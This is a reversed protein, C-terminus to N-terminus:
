PNSPPPTTERVLRAFEHLEQANLDSVAWFTMGGASWHALHYGQWEGPRAAADAGPASPWVFLNIVHQRRRYVLAAVVRDDLYDLRGGVLPFGQDALDPVPPAFNLKGLFWPKVTHRDSSEVDLLHKEMLSRVHNAAVERTLREGAAPLGVRFAWWTALSVLAVSAALALWRWPLRRPAGAREAARLSSRIAGYLDPPPTFRLPGQAVLDQLARLGGCTRGCDPCGALHEEVELSRAPDLEGDAYAHLVKRLDACTM